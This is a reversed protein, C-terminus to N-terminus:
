GAKVLQKLIISLSFNYRGGERDNIGFDRERDHLLELLKEEAMENDHYYYYMMALGRVPNYLQLKSYSPLERRIEISREFLDGVGEFMGRMINVRGVESYGSALRSTLKGTENYLEEEIELFKENEIVATKRDNSTAALSGRLNHLASRLNRTDTSCEEAVAFATEIFKACDQPNGSEYLYSVPFTLM